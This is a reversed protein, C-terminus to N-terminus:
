GLIFQGIKRIMGNKFYNYRIMRGWKRFKNLHVFEAYARIIEQNESPLQGKYTQYFEGAQIYTNRIKTRLFEIDSLNKKVYGASRTDIAGIENSSHQRYKITARDVFGIHGFASAILAAWWDHMVIHEMNQFAVKDVLAKNVMASCGTVYNQALIKNITVFTSSLKQVHMMSPAITRLHEDVVELDTHVLLPTGAGYKQEMERMLALSVKVKDPYWFDDHDAFMAYESNSHGILNFFNQKAGGLIKDTQLVTINNNEAAYKQLITVTSDTSGDDGAIIHIERHTQAILSDLLEALFKESNHTALLIDVM